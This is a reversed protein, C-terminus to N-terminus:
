NDFRSDDEVDVLELGKSNAILLDEMRIGGVLTDWDDTGDFQVSGKNIKGFNVINVAATGGDAVATLEETFVGRPIASGDSAGSKCVVWNGTAAVKGALTGILVTEEGGSINEYTGPVTTNNFILLNEKQWDYTAQNATVNRETVGM